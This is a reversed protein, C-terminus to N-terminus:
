IPAVSHKNDKLNLNISINNGINTLLHHFCITPKEKM